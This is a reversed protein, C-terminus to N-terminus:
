EAAPEVPASNNNSKSTKADVSQWVDTQLLLLTADSDSVEATQGALVTINLSPIELDGLPSVNKITAM